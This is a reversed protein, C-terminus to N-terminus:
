GVQEATKISDTHTQGCVHERIALCEVYLSEARGDEGRARYLHALNFLTQGVRDSQRTYYQCRVDLARQDAAGDGVEAPM